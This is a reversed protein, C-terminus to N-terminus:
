LTLIKFQLSINTGVGLESTVRIVGNHDLVIRNCIALGMGTGAPDTTFFPHLVKELDEPKIGRGTDNINLYVYKDDACTQISITDGKTCAREANQLLNLLVQKIQKDIGIICPIEQLEKTYIIGKNSGSYTYLEWVDGIIENLNFEKREGMEPRSVQLMIGVISNIRELEEYALECLGSFSHDSWKERFLQLFGKVTTLPNRIEHAAGAALEGVASLTAMRQLKDRQQQLQTIDNIVTVFCNKGAVDDDTITFRSILYNKNGIEAEMNLFNPPWHHYPVSSHAWLLSEGKGALDSEAVKFIHEVQRNSLIIEGTANSIIIGESFTEILDALFKRERALQLAHKFIIQSIQGVLWALLILCLALAIDNHVLHKDRWLINVDILVASILGLNTGCTLSVLVVPIAYIGYYTDKDGNYFFSVTFLVLFISYLGQYLKKNPKNIKENIAKLFLFNIILFSPFVFIYTRNYDLLSSINWVQLESNVLGMMYIASLFLFHAVWYIDKVQAVPPFKNNM